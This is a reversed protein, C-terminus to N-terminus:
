ILGLQEARSEQWTVIRNILLIVLVAAVVDLADGAMSRYDSVILESLSPDSFLGVFLGRRVIRGGLWLAWWWGVLPSGIRAPNSEQYLERMSQFPRFLNMVPVFYWGVAWGPTFRLPSSSDGSRVQGLNRVARNIWVLFVVVAPIFTLYYFALAAIVRNDSATAEADSVIIGDQIRQLIQVEGWTAWIGFATVIVVLGILGQARRARTRASRYPDTAVPASELPVSHQPVPFAQASQTPFVPQGPQPQPQGCAPCFQDEDNVASGCNSCTAM